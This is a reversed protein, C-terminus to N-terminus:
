KRNQLNHNSNEYFDPMRSSYTTLMLSLYQSYCKEKVIKMCFFIRRISELLSELLSTEFFGRDVTVECSSTEPEFHLEVRHEVSVKAPLERVEQVSLLQLPVFSALMTPFLATTKERLFWTPPNTRARLIKWSIPTSTAWMSDLFDFLLSESYSIKTSMSQSSGVIIALRTWWKLCSTSPLVISSNSLAFDDGLSFVGEPDTEPIVPIGSFDTRLFRRRGWGLM